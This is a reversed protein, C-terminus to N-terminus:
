YRNYYYAIHPNFQELGVGDAGQHLGLEDVALPALWRDLSALLLLQLSIEFLCSHRPDVFLFSRFHMICRGVIALGLPGLKLVVILRAQGHDSLVQRTHVVLNM